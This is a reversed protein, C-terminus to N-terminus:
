NTISVTVSSSRTSFVSDTALVTITNQGVTVGPVNKPVFSLSSGGATGAFTNGIYVDIKQIPFNGSAVVSVTVPTTMSLTQGSTPATVTLGSTTNGHVNDYGTPQSGYTVTPYRSANAGWWNRVATEWNYYLPDDSPNSPTGSRPAEKHIWHLINHVDTVVYEKKTENPTQDTALMGSVTDIIFSQGGQWQGRLVPPLSAYDPDPDPESFTENPYKKLAEEMFMRWLPAANVAVPMPTNDNKGMWVGAVLSPTYGVTWSDKFDNTTGTKAAVQRDPFYLNNRAGFTPTRAVNDSLISSMQLAVNRPLVEIEEDQWEEIINGSRDELKLIGSSPHRVGESAFVGYASVMEALRVEGGGLVLALGYRDPNTLTTIGMDQATKIANKIGVLYLTKVAPVNMSRALSERITMPGHYKGDYNQPTYCLSAPVGPYPNGYPNCKVNFETPVDFLVTEPTYGMKLATAYVYPKFSSGPQRRATTVNFNGDIETDFYNRSGVMALIQGTKPDLAVLGANGKEIIKHGGTTYETVAKEAAQQLDWDITTIVKFGGTAVMEAGYKEELLEQIYFVFHPAKIGRSTQQKWVVVEATAEAHQEATILGLELERSLVLNKRAELLDKHSGYPSYRSPANPISALYASEALTLDRASKGLFSQSAEEIGYINGGYPIENLYMALIDDKSYERELKLALVIEKLKRIPTKEDSLLSKKIVQQTITSGGQAYSASTLNAIVARMFSKPRFGQHSYFASDEIAITATRINEGMQDFPISTRKVDRNLDYLIVTGTRDYVKTSDTVRRSEFSSFDPLQISSIWIVVIGFVLAILGAGGLLVNRILPKKFKKHMFRMRSDYWAGIKKLISLLRQKWAM